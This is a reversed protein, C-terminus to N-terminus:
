PCLHMIVPFRVWVGTMQVLTRQVLGSLLSVDDSQIADHGLRNMSFSQQYKM